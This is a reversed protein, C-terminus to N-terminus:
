LDHYKVITSWTDKPMIGLYNDPFEIEMHADIVETIEFCLGLDGLSVDKDFFKTINEISMGIEKNLIEYFVVQVNEKTWEM